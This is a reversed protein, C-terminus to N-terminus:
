TRGATPVSSPYPLVVARDGAGAGPESDDEPPPAPAFVARSAWGLNELLNIQDIDTDGAAILRGRIGGLSNFVAEARVEADLHSCRSARYISRVVERILEYHVADGDLLDNIDAADPKVPLHHHGVLEALRTMLARYQMSQCEEFTDTDNM